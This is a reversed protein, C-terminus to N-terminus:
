GFYWTARRVLSRFAASAADVQDDHASKPFACLEDVFAQNWDGEVPKVFSYECQAAFPDARSKKGGQEAETVVSYGRLLGALHHAKLKGAQRPDQPIRIRTEEGDWRATAKIMNEVEAPSSRGRIVDVVFLFDKQPDGTM